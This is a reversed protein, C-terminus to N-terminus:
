FIVRRRRIKLTLACWEWVNGFINMMGYPSAGEPYADVPTTEEPRGERTNCKDVDFEDGWPYARGDMDGRAAKEWEPETPLRLGLTRGCTLISSSWAPKERKM